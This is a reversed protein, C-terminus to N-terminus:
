AGPVGLAKAIGRVTACPWPEGDGPSVREGYDLAVVFESDSCTRCTRVLVPPPEGEADMDHVDMPNHLDLVAVLAAEFRGSVTPTMVLAERIAQDLDAM